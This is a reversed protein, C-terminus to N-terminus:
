DLEENLKTILIKTKGRLSKANDLQKQTHLLRDIISNQYEKSALLATYDSKAGFEKIHDYKSDENSLMDVLSVYEELVPKLRNTVIAKIQDDQKKFSEILNPYIIILDKLSTNEIFEFKTTNIISNISANLLKVEKDSINIITDKAGETLNLQDVSVYNLTNELYIITEPYEVVLGNLIGLNTNLEEKLNFYIKQELLNNKRIDNLDNIKWAISIGIVILIIEGFAYILYSKFQGLAILKKRLKRFLKM